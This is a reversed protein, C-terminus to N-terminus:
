RPYAPGDAGEGEGKEIDNPVLFGLKREVLEQIVVDPREREVVDAHFDDHWIGVQRRFHEALLPELGCSFFSDHFVVARPLTSDPNVFVKPEGYQLEANPVAVEEETLRSRRPFRPTLDLNEERLVDRLDLLGASDGGRDDSVTEQFQDRELPRIAPFWGSLVKTLERYAVFAGRQNWHSDTRHYVRERQKAERLADRVDLLEIDSHARLHDRLQDLRSAHRPLLYEPLYEPYITQKDPPIFVLYRCGRRALWQQRRELVRQWHDLEEATFPRVLEYDSGARLHNYFLWGDRGLIVQASTSVGLGQVKVAALARILAGRFGFHDRLWCAYREPFTRLSDRTWRLTPADALRRMDNGAPVGDLSFITGVMPGVTAALLLGIVARDAARWARPRNPSM